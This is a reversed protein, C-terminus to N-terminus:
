RAGAKRCSHFSGVPSGLGCGAGGRAHMPFWHRISEDATRVTDAPFKEPFALVVAAYCCDEEFALVGRGIDQGIERLERPMREAAERSVIFGGHGATTVFTVGDGFDRMTQVEGWPSGRMTTGSRM